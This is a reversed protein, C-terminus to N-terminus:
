LESSQKGGRAAVRSVDSGALSYHCAEGLAEFAAATEQTTFHEATRPGLYSGASVAGSSRQALNM